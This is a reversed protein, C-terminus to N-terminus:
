KSIVSKESIQLLFSSFVQFVSVSAREGGVVNGSAVFFIPKRIVKELVGKGIKPKNGSRKDSLGLFISFILCFSFKSALYLRSTFLWPVFKSDWPVRGRLVKTNIRIYKYMYEM